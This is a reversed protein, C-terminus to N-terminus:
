RYLTIESIGGCHERIARSTALQDDPGGSINEIMAKEYTATMVTLPLVLLSM